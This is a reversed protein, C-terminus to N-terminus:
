IMYHLLIIEQQNRTYNQSIQLFKVFEHVSIDKPGNRNRLLSYILCMRTFM